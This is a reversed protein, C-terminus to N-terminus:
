SGAPPDSHSSAYPRKKAMISDTPRYASFWPQRGIRDTRSAAPFPVSFHVKLM